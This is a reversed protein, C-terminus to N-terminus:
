PAGSAPPLEWGTRLRDACDWSAPLTAKDLRLQHQIFLPSSDRSLHESFMKRKDGGKSFCLSIYTKGVTPFNSLLDLISFRTGHSWGSIFVSHFIHRPKMGSLAAWYLLSPCVRGRTGPM